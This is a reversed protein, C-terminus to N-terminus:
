QSVSMAAGVGCILLDALGIKTGCYVKGTVGSSVMQLLM